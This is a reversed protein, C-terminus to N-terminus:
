LASYSKASRYSSLGGTRERFSESLLSNKSVEDYVVTGGWFLEEGAGLRRVLDPFLKRGRPLLSAIMETFPSLMKAMGKRALLPLRELRRWIKEYINLFEVYNNYGSFIEDSGEGVQVVITGSDRVLKSVYYLPVCVPDAIPEDQHFILDPLFDVVEEPGIMVEHHDTSYEHSIQRAYELENYGDAGHYGVTFTRVPQDSLRAM